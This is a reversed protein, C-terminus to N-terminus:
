AYDKSKFSRSRELTILREAEILKPKLDNLENELKRELTINKGVGLMGIIKNDKKITKISIQFRNLRKMSILSHLKLFLLIM